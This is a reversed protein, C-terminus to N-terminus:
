QSHVGRINMTLSHTLLLQGSHVGIRLRMHQDQMHPIRFVLINDLFDLAMSCIEEVHSDGNRQPLGSVVMYADGITEVKYVDYKSSLNDLMTYLQNLMEIVQLTNIINNAM